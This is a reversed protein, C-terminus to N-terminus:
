RRGVRLGLARPAAAVARVPLPARRGEEEAQEARLTAARVLVGGLSKLPEPPLAPPLPRVLPLATWEDEAGAALSALAQAALWSPGVGNGSFGAAHHVRRRPLSGVFPVLDSSVDIPGGWAHTVRAGALAPLLKRLGAEARAASAADALFRRDLRGGLGIPGSGSGMLVRGEPTTRFYHLFMRSDAIAEGGTWGIEALLEPVPETLVVYSGFNTLRSALPRWGAAAANVALVVDRARVGGEPTCLLSPDGARLRVVPTREHLAVGAALVARRLARVLRAPQVTAGDRFYVGRRFVPSRCRAALEERGLPVAEEPVGLERAAAVAQEVAADQATAASVKLMGAERLWVDEGRADCFTRVAPVIRDGARALALAGPDGLASRLRPLSAWYGHLFGGNRGSPGEGCAAAELLAVAVGPSRERLALATWLGTYGGGVVAVDVDLGGRLPPAEDPEGGAALAEQLWWPPRRGPAVSPGAV